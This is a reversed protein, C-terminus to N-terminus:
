APIEHKGVDTAVVPIGQSVAEMVVKPTGESAISPLVFVDATRYFERLDGEEQVYGPFRIHREMCVSHALSRLRNELPGSGVLTLKLDLGEARLTSVARILYEIGKYEEFRGVFLVTYPPETRIEPHRAIDRRPISSTRM